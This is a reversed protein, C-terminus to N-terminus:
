PSPKQSIFPACTIVVIVWTNYPWTPCPLARISRLLSRAFLSIYVTVFAIVDQFIWSTFTLPQANLFITWSITPKNSVFSPQSLAFHLAPAYFAVLKPMQSHTVDPLISITYNVVANYLLPWSKPPSRSTPSAPPIPKYTTM